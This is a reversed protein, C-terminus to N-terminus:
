WITFVQKKDSMITFFTVYIPYTRAYNIFKFVFLSLIDSAAIRM